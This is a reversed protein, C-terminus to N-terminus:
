SGCLNTLTRIFFHYFCTWSLIQTTIQREPQQGRAGHSWSRSSSTLSPTGQPPSHASLMLTEVSFTNGGIVDRMATQPQEFFYALRELYRYLWVPLGLGLLWKITPTMSVPADKWHLNRSLSCWNLLVVPLLTIPTFLKTEQKSIKSGM